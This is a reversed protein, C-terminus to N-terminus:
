TEALINDGFGWLQKIIKLGPSWLCCLETQRVAGGAANWCTQLLHIIHKSKQSLNPLGNDHFNTLFAIFKESITPFWQSILEFTVGIHPRMAEGCVLFSICLKLM